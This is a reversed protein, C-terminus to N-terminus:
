AALLSEVLPLLPGHELRIKSIASASIQAPMVEIGDVFSMLGDIRNWRNGIRDVLEDNSLNEEPDTYMDIDEALSRVNVGLAILTWSEELFRGVVARKPFAAREYMSHQARSDTSDHRCRAVSVVSHISARLNAYDEGQALYSKKPFYLHHTDTFCSGLKEAVPCGEGVCNKQRPPIALGHETRPSFRYQM